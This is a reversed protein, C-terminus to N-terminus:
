AHTAGYQELEASVDRGMFLSTWRVCLDHFRRADAEAEADDHDALEEMLSSTEDLFESIAFMIVHEDEAFIEREEEPLAILAEAFQTRLYRGLQDGSWDARMKVVPNYGSLSGALWGVLDMTATETRKGTAKGDMHRVQIESLGDIFYFCMAYVDEPRELHLEKHSPNTM